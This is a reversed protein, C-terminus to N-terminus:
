AAERPDTIDAVDRGLTVASTRRTARPKDVQARSQESWARARYRITEREIGLEDAARDLAATPAMGGRIHEAMRLIAAATQFVQGIPIVAQWDPLDFLERLEELAARLVPSLAAEIRARDGPAARKPM